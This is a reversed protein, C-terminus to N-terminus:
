GAASSTWEDSTILQGRLAVATDELAADAVKGLCTRTPGSGARRCAIEHRPGLQREEIQNSNVTPPLYSVLLAIRPCM